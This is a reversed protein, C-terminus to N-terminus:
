SMCKKKLDAGKLSHESRAEDTTGCWGERNAQRVCSITFPSRVGDQRRGDMSLKLLPHSAVSGRGTLRGQVALRALCFWAGDKNRVPTKSLSTWLRPRAFIPFVRFFM